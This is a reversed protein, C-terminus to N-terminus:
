FFLKYSIVINRGAEPMISKIKSLHNYYEENLINNLQITIKHNNKSYGMVFDILKASPTFSEFEGLRNQSHIKSFRINYNFLKQTYEFNLIQKAPNMYSLPLELQLNDGNVLSFDYTVKLNKYHYALNLELGKILAEVGQTRYKYLWGSSGSGWEIFDEGACPHSEGPIFEEDCQGMKSMQYYYPSYNYFATLSTVFPINDPNYHISSEIGYIKELQKSIIM